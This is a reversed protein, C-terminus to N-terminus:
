ASASYKGFKRTYDVMAAINEFPVALPIEPGQAGLIYGGGQCAQDLSRKVELQVKLPSYHILAINNLNGVLCIKDGVLQKCTGLDDFCDLIVAVAGSDAIDRIIPQVSGVGEYVVPGKIQSITDKIVPLALERFEHARIVTSSAIGDALVVVNAGAELQLNAWRVVYDRCLELLKGMYKRRIAPDDFLLSIWPGTGMLMSPLSFPAIAAGFVLTEGALKKALLNMAKLTEALERSNGPDPTKLDFIQNFDTIVMKAVSPPGDPFHQLKSGWPILDQVVHPFGFVGDHEFRELLALQGKALYDGRSFYTPLDMKLEKAGQMLMVPLVPTRDPETLNVAALVREASRM